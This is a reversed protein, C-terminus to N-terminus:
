SSKSSFADLPDFDRCTKATMDGYALFNNPSRRCIGVQPKSEDAAYNSCRCCRPLCSFCECNKEDAAVVEKTKHCIGRAADLPAYNRCDRHAYETKGMDYNEM